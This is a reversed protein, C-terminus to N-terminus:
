GRRRWEELQERMVRERDARHAEVGARMTEALLELGQGKRASVAVVQIKQRRGGESRKAESARPELARCEREPRTSRAADQAVGADRSEAREETEEAGRLPAQLDREARLRARAEGRTDGGAPAPPGHRELALQRLRALRRQQEPSNLERWLRDVSRLTAAPRVDCKTAALIFPRTALSASYLCVERYLAFFAKLPDRPIRPMDAIWRRSDGPLACFPEDASDARADAGGQAGDAEADAVVETASEGSVDVVYVLLNTRECHRLFAHGMGENLHAHEVLGPLDAVTLTEGTLFDIQGVNPATTTFPFAAVRAACRSLAALISSKGANPFGVLGVDAICKLEVELLREEGPEGREAKHPDARSNGRGGRGGRAVVLPASSAVLEGLFVRDYAVPATGGGDGSGEADEMEAADETDEAGECPSAPRAAHAESRRRRRPRLEWAVTGPPVHLITDRGNRGPRHMKGGGEGDEGRAWGPLSGLGGSASAASFVVKAERESKKTLSFVPPRRAGSEGEFTHFAPSSASAFSLSSLSASASSSPSCSSAHSSPEDGAVTAAKRTPLVRLIVSGGDGGKGGSPVGPGVLIQKAHKTYSCSGAGGDGGYVRVVRSDVFASSSFPRSPFGAFAGFLHPRPRRSPRFLALSGLSAAHAPRPPSPRCSAASAVYRPLGSLPSPSSPSYSSRQSDVASFRRPPPRSVDFADNLLFCSSSFFPFVSPSLSSSCSSPGPSNAPSNAWPFFHVSVHCSRSPPRPLAATSTVTVASPAVCAATSYWALFSRLRACCPPSALPGSFSSLLRSFSTNLPAADPPSSSSSALRLTAKRTRDEKQAYCLTRGGRRSLLPVPKFRFTAARM